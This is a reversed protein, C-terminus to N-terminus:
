KKKKIVKKVVKKKPIKLKPSNTGDMKHKPVKIKEIMSIEVLPAQKEFIEDLIPEIIDEVTLGGTGKCEECAKHQNILGTGKCSECM